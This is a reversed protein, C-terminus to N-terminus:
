NESWKKVKFTVLDDNVTVNRLSADYHIAASNKTEFSKAIVSGYLPVGNHYTIAAKPAYIAAYLTINNKFTMSACTDLGYILAKKPVQTLNNIGSGNNSTLKGGLYLTLSANPNVTIQASNGLTINGTVYLTVNGSITIVKGAGLNVTTYKGSSSITTNTTINGKTAQSSIASPVTVSRLTNKASMASQSGTITGKNDIVTAPNGDVGVAVNGNITANTKLTVAKAAISNTGVTLTPTDAATNYQDISSGNYLTISQDAFIPYDFVGGLALTCSVNKQAHRYNGVAAVVYDSGSKTITYGYVTECGPLLVNSALPLTSDNWPKTQIKINMDYLAKILGADAATRASIASANKISQLRAQYGLTLLGIGLMSLILVVCMVLPLALGYRKKAASKV